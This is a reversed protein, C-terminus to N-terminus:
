SQDRSPNLRGNGEDVNLTSKKYFQSFDDSEAKQAPAIVFLLECRCDFECSITPQQLNLTDLAVFGVVPAFSATGRHAHQNDECEIGNRDRSLVATGELTRVPSEDSLPARETTM